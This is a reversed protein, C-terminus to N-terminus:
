APADHVVLVRVRAVRAGTHILLQGAWQAAQRRAASHRVDRRGKWGRGGSRSRRGITRAEIGLHNAGAERCVDRTREWVLADLMWPNM